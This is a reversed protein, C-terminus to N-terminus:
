FVTSYKKGKEGSHMQLPVQQQTQHRKSNLFALLTNRAQLKKKYSQQSQYKTAMSDNLSCFAELIMFDLRINHLPGNLM